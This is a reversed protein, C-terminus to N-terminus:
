RSFRHVVQAVCSPKSTDTAEFVADMIAQVGRHVREVRVPTWALRLEAIDM